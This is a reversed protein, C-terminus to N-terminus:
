VILRRIQNQLTLLKSKRALIIVKKSLYLLLVDDNCFWSEPVNLSSFKSEEWVFQNKRSTESAPFTNGQLSMVKKCSWVLDPVSGKSLFNDFCQSKGNCSSSFASDPLVNVFISASKCFIRPFIFLVLRFENRFLFVKWLNYWSCTKM